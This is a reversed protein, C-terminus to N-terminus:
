TIVLFDYSTNGWFIPSICECFRELGPFFRPHFDTMRTPNRVPLCDAPRTQLLALRETDRRSFGWNM